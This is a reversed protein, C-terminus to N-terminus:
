IAHTRRRDYYLTSSKRKRIKNVFIEIIFGILIITILLHYESIKSMSLYTNAITVALVMSLLIPIEIISGLVILFFYGVIHKVTPGNLKKM